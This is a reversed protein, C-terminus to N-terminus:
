LVVQRKSEQSGPAHGSECTFLGVLCPLRVAGLSWLRCLRGLCIGRIFLLLHRLFLLRSTTRVSVVATWQRLLVHSHWSDDTSYSWSVCRPAFPLCPSSLPSQQPTLNVLQAKWTDVPSPITSWYEPDGAVFSKEDDDIPIRLRPLRPPNLLYRCFADIFLRLHRALRHHHIIVLVLTVIGIASCGSAFM